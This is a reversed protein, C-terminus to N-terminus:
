RNTEKNLIKIQYSTYKVGFFSRRQSSDVSVAALFRWSFRASTSTVAFLLGPKDVYMGLGYRTVVM